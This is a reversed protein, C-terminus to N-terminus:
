DGDADAEAEAEPAQGSAAAGAPVECQGGPDDAVATSGLGLRGGDPDLVTIDLTTISSDADLVGAFAVPAIQLTCVDGVKETPVSVVGVGGEGSELTAAGPEQCAGGEFTFRLVIRAADLRCASIDDLPRTTEALAGTTALIGAALGLYLQAFKPM